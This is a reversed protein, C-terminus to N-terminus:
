VRKPFDGSSVGRSPNKLSGKAAGARALRANPFGGSRRDLVKPDLKAYPGRGNQAKNPLRAHQSVIQKGSPFKKDRNVEPDYPNGPVRFYDVFTTTSSPALRPVSM